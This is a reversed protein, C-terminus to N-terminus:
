GNPRRDIITNLDDIGWWSADHTREATVSAAEYTYGKAELAATLLDLDRKSPSTYYADGHECSQYDYCHALMVIAEPILPAEIGAFQYDILEPIPDRYRAHLSLHNEMWLATGVKTAQSPQIIQEVIMQQVLADIHAHSVLWASM